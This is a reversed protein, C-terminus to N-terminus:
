LNREVTDSGALLVDCAMGIIDALDINPNRFYEELLSSKKKIESNGINKSVEKDDFYALKQTVFEIAASNLSLM